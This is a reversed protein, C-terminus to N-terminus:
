WRSGTSYYVAAGTGIAATSAGFHWIQETAHSPLAATIDLATASLFIALTITALHVVVRRQDVPPKRRDMRCMVRVAYAMVILQILAAAEIPMM